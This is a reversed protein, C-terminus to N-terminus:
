REKHAVGFRQEEDIVVLGLDRFTVDRQLLRHTGIVVDVTGNAMGKVVEAQDKRTRFRSLNAVRVREGALRLRFTEYLEEARITTPGLVAAQKGAKVVQCGARIAV